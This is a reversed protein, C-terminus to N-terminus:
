LGGTSAEVGDLSGFGIDHVLSDFADNDEAHLFSDFDFNELVDPGDLPGFDLGFDGQAATLFSM